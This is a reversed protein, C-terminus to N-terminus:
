KKYMRVSLKEGWCLFGGGLSTVHLTDAKVSRYVRGSGKKNVGKSLGELVSQGSRQVIGGKIFAGGISVKTSKYGRCCTTKEEWWKNRGSHIVRGCRRMRVWSQRFPPTTNTKSHESCQVVTKGEAVTFVIVGIVLSFPFLAEVV